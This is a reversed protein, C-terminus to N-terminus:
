HKKPHNQALDGSRKRKLLKLGSNGKTNRHYKVHKKDFPSSHDNDNDNSSDINPTAMPPQLMSTSFQKKRRIDKNEKILRDMLSRKSAGSSKVNVIYVGTDLVHPLQGNNPSLGLSPLLKRKSKSPSLKINSMDRQM